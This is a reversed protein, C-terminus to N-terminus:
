QREGLLQTQDTWLGVAYVLSVSVGEGSPKEGCRFVMSIGSGYSQQSCQGQNRGRVCNCKELVSKAIKSAIEGKAVIKPCSIQM